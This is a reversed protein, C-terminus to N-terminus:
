GLRCTDGAIRANISASRTYPVTRRGAVESAIPCGGPGRRDAPSPAGREIARADARMKGVARGRCDFRVEARAPMGDVDTSSM